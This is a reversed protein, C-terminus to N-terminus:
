GLTVRRIEWIVNSLRGFEALSLTEGRRGLDIGSFQAVKDLELDLLEPLSSLANRLMKRRHGFAARVVRFFFQEDQVSIPSEELIELRVVSSDVKPQPYFAEAPVDFLLTPVTYYQIFVSLAGYGKSGPLAVMRRAVERQVMVVAREVAWKQEILWHLLPSTIQYPLNGIVKLKPAGFDAKVRRLDVKLIDGEILHFNDCGALEKKLIDALQLDLEVAVVWGAREALKGTLIGLGPGVELVVERPGPDLADIM